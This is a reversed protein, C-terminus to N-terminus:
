IINICLEQNLPFHCFPILLPNVDYISVPCVACSVLRAVKFRRHVASIHLVILKDCDKISIELWLSVEEFASNGVKPYEQVIGM